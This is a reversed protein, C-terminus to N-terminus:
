KDPKLLDLVYIPVKPHLVAQLCKTHCFFDQTHQRRKPGEFCTMYSLLAVDPGERPISKACFCCAYETKMAAEIISALHPQPRFVPKGSVPETM